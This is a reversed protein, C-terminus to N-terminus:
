LRSFSVRFLWIKNNIRYVFLSLWNTPQIIERQNPDIFENSLASIMLKYGNTGNMWDFGKM